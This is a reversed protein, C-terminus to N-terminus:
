ASKKRRRLALAGFGLVALTAPEPVPEQGPIANVGNLHLGFDNYDKDGLNVGDEWSVTLGCDTLCNDKNRDKVVAVRNEQKKNKETQSYYVTSKFANGNGKDGSGFALGFVGSIQVTATSPLGSSSGGLVWTIAPNKSTMDTYYGLLHNAKYGAKQWQISWVQPKKPDCLQFTRGDSQDGYNFQNGKVAGVSSYQGSGKLLTQVDSGAGDGGKTLNRPDIFQANAVFVCSLISLSAIIKKM